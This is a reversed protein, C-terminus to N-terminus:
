GRRYRTDNIQCDVTPARGAAPAPIEAHTVEEEGLEPVGQDHQETHEGQHEHHEMEGAIRHHHHQRGVRAALLDVRERLAEPEILREDHLVAAEEGPDRAAVEAHRELMLVGGHAQHGPPEGGEISRAPLASIM